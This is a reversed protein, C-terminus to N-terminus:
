VFLRDRLGLLLGGIMRPFTGHTSRAVFRRRPNANRASPRSGLLIWVRMLAVIGDVCDWHIFADVHPVDLAVNRTETRSATVISLIADVVVSM